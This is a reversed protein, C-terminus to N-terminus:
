VLCSLQSARRCKSTEHSADLCIRCLRKKVLQDYKEDDGLNHFVDFKFVPHFESCGDISCQRQKPRGGGGNGGGGGGGGGGVNAYNVAPRAPTRTADVAFNALSNMVEVMQDADPVKMSSLTKSLEIKVEEPLNTTISRIIFIMFMDSASSCKRVSDLLAEVELSFKTMSSGYKLKRQALLRDVRNLIQMVESGFRREM